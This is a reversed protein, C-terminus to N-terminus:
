QAMSNGIQIQFESQRAIAVVLALHPSTWDFLLLILLFLRLLYLSGATILM